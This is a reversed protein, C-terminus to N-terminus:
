LAGMQRLAGISVGGWPELCHELEDINVGKISRGNKAEGRVCRCFM